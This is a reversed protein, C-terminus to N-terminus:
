GREELSRTEKCEPFATCGLFPRDKGRHVMLHGCTCHHRPNQSVYGYMERAREILTSLANQTRFVRQDLVLREGGKRHQTDLLQVHIVDTAAERTMGTNRSISSLIRLRIRGQSLRCDIAREWVHEWTGTAAMDVEIFGKESMTAAFQAYPIPFYGRPM